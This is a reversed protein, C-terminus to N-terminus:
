DLALWTSDRAFEDLESYYFITDEADELRPDHLLLLVTYKSRASILKLPALLKTKENKEQLHKYQEKSLKNIIIAFSKMDPAKLLVLSITTLDESRLRGASLRLVFFMQYKGNQKLADTISSAAAQRMNIDALGPTDM